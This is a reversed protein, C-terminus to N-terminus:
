TRDGPTVSGPVGPRPRALQALVVEDAAPDRLWDRVDEVRDARPV